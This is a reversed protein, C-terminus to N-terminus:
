SDLLKYGIIVLILWRMFLVLINGVIFFCGMLNMYVNFM